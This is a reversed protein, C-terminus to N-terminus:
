YSTKKYNGITIKNEKLQYTFRYHEQLILLIEEIKEKDFVGTYRDNLLVGETVEFTVGYKREIKALVMKLPESRFVLAKSTWATELQNTTNQVELNGTQKNYVVKQNAHVEVTQCPPKHTSITVNGKVLAMEVFDKNEYAFVNFCTGTVLIDLHKTKVIFEKNSDKKVDFYGEGTLSVVRNKLGFSQKYNLESESNLKVFTGDPLTISLREDEGTKVSVSQEALMAMEKNSTYLVVSLGTLLIITVMAAIQLGKRVWNVAIRPQTHEGIKALLQEEHPTLFISEDGLEEWYTQFMPMLEEDSHANIYKKLINFEEPEIQNSIYKRFKKNIDSKINQM